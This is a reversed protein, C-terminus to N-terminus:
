LKMSKNQIVKLFEIISLFCELKRMCCCQIGQRYLIGQQLAQRELAWRWSQNTLECRGSCAGSWWTELDARDYEWSGTLKGELRIIKIYAYIKFNHLKHGLTIDLLRLILPPVGSSANETMEPPPSKEPLSSRGSACVYGKNLKLSRKCACSVIYFVSPLFANCTEKLVQLFFFFFFHLFCSNCSCSWSTVCPFTM